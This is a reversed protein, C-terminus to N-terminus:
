GGLMAHADMNAVAAALLPKTAEIGRDYVSQPVFLEGKNGLPTLYMIAVGKVARGTGPDLETTPRQSLVSWGPKAPNV